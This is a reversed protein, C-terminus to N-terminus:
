FNMNLTLGLGYNNASQADNSKMLTPSINLSYSKGQRQNYEQAIRKMKNGGSVGLILGTPLTIASAIAFAGAAPLYEYNEDFKLLLSAVGLSVAGIADFVLGTTNQRKARQYLDYNQSSVLTRVENDTLVRGNIRLQGWSGGDDMYGNFQSQPQQKNDKQKSQVSSFKEVNGNQYSISAVESISISYTPGDQNSWKKYKIETSTIELVKSIVTSNDKKVIVDQATVIGTISCLFVVLLITKVSKM